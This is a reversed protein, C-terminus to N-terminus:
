SKKGSTLRIEGKGIKQSVRLGSVDIVQRRGADGEVSEGGGEGNEGGGWTAIAGTGSGCREGGPRTDNECEGRDEYRGTGPGANHQREIKKKRFSQYTSISVVDRAHM